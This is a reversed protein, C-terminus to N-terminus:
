VRVVKVKSAISIKEFGFYVRLMCETEAQTLFPQGVQLEEEPCAVSDQEKKGCVVM